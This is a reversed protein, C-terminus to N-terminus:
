AYVLGTIEPLGLALNMNQVAQGAMGKILNDLATMIVVQRGKVAFGIDCANTGIVNNIRPSGEMLRIFPSHEYATEYVKHLDASGPSGTLRAQLTIFIGRVMPASHPIFSLEPTRRGNVQLAAHIEAEHQHEFLRYARFDTARDPHHTNVSPHVGSGSSGTVGTVAVWEPSEFSLLPRLALQVATAFCGPNAIRKAGPLTERQHESLGYIWGNLADPAPHPKGYAAQYDDANPVRFDGSLDIITINEALGEPLDLQLQAWDAAFVGNPQASFLVPSDAKALAHWDPADRFHGEVFGRLKPHATHWPAGAHSRSVAQINVVAPHGALLRLLEGGGYGAAGLIVASIRTNDVGRM